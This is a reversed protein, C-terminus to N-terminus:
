VPNYFIGYILNENINNFEDLAHAVRRSGTFLDARADYFTSTTDPQFNIFAIAVNNESDFLSLELEQWNTLDIIYPPVNDKFNLGYAELRTQIISMADYETFHAVYIPGGGAGGFHFDCGTLSVAGFMGLGVAAVLAKKKWRSPMKKLLEAEAKELTPLKPVEYDEIPALTLLNDRM